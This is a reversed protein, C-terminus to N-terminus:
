NKNMIPNVQSKLREVLKSNEKDRFDNEVKLKEKLEHNEKQLLINQDEVSSAEQM